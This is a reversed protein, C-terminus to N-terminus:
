SKPRVYAEKVVAEAGPGTAHNQTLWKLTFDRNGLDEPNQFYDRSAMLALVDQPVHEQCLVGPHPAWCPPEPGESRPRFEATTIIRGNTPRSLVM